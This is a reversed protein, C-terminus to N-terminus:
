SKGELADLLKEARWALKRLAQQLHVEPLVTAQFWLGEDEAQQNCLQRLESTMTAIEPSLSPTIAANWAAEAWDKALNTKPGAHSRWWQEFTGAADGTAMDACATGIITQTTGGEQPQPCGSDHIESWDQREEIWYIMKGCKSCAYPQTNEEEQPQPSVALQFIIEDFAHHFRSESM